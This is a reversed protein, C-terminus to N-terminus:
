SAPDNILGARRLEGCFGALHRSVEYVGVHYLAATEAAIEGVTHTGDMMLYAKKGTRNLFYVSDGAVAAILHEGDERIKRATRQPRATILQFVEDERVASLFGPSHGADIFFPLASPPIYGTNRGAEPITQENKVNRPAADLFIDEDSYNILGKLEGTLMDASKLIEVALPHEWAAIGRDRWIDKLEETMVNGITFPTLCNLRINGDPRIIVTKKPLASLLYRIMMCGTGSPVLFKHRAGLSAMNDFFHEMGETDLMLGRNEAARGSFGLTDFVIRDAGLELALEAMRDMGGISMRTVCSSIEFPVGARFLLRAANVAKEFSGPVQRLGDHPEPGAGDISLRIRLNKYGKFAEAKREDLLWGNSIVTMSVGDREFLRLLEFLVDEALLPEGGSFVVNFAGGERIVQEAVNMWREKTMADQRGPASNNYCHLCKLNCRATLDFQIDLPFNFYLPYNGRQQEYLISEEVRDFYNEESKILDAIM